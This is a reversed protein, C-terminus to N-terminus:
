RQRLKPNLVEDLSRGVLTFALGTLLVLFIPELVWYYYGYYAGGTLADYIIKGWTPLYPDSLGLFALTTELFVYTPVLTVVQPILLPYIRPMLYNFIIRWNGVGYARAAEIYPMERAQLFAARYNKVSTGLISLLIIVSLMVWISKSYMVYIMVAIPLSPIVLNVETIRQILQDVWGGFWVSIAAILVSLLSSLIAGTFGFLLAVTAGWLLGMGLDRRRSDTGAVGAVKGYLLMEVDVSSEEEFTLAKIVMQYKGALPVPNMLNAPDTFIAQESRLPALRRSLNKDQSLIYSYTRVVSFDAIPIERGDPTQWTVQIFPKKEDYRSVFVLMLDQPFEAYSYDFPFIYTTEKQTPSVMRSSKEVVSDQSQLNITPPLKKVRFLNVWV